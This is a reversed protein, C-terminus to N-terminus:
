KKVIKYGKKELVEQLFAFGCNTGLWQIVTAAIYRHVPNIRLHCYDTFKTRQMFLDQLLGEGFNIGPRYRNEKKWADSFAKELEDTKTREFQYGEDVIGAATIKMQRDNDFCRFSCFGLEYLEEYDDSQVHKGCNCKFDFSYKM